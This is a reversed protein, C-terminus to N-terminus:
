SLPLACVAATLEPSEKNGDASLFNFPFSHRLASSAPANRSPSMISMGWYCVYAAPKLPQCFIYVSIPTGEFFQPLCVTQFRHQYVRTRFM